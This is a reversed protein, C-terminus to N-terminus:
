GEASIFDTYEAAGALHAVLHYWSTGLFLYAILLM